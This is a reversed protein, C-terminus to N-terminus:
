HALGSKLRLWGPPLPAGAQTPLGTEEWRAETVQHLVAVTHDTAEPAPGPPPPDPGRQTLAMVILVAAAAGSLGLAAGPLFGVRPPPPPPPAGVPQGAGVRDRLSQGARAPLTGFHGGLDAYLSMYQVYYAEAEPHTLVLEELRRVQEPTISEECLADLLERLEASKDFPGTMHAGRGGPVQRRLRVPGAPDEGAHPLGRGRLPRGRRRHVPHQGGRRLPPQAPRPRPCDIERHVRGAGRPPRRAALHRGARGGDRRGARADGPQLARPLPPEEQLLGPDQLLRRPLGLRRLRRAPRARRVQGVHRPQSGAVRRRRRRP